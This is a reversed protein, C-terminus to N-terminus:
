HRRAAAAIVLLLFLGILSFGVAIGAVALGRGPQAGGTQRIQNRAVFGLVIGVVCPIGFFFPVIGAVSCVLSAVALGNTSQPPPAGSPPVSGWTPSPPPVPPASWPSPSAYPSPPRRSPHTEPPYWKGDSAQWWGAGQSTDSM